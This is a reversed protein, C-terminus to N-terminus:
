LSLLTRKVMTKILQLKYANKSLPTADKVALKGAEEALVDTLEKGTLTQEAYTAKEPWSAILGLIIRAEEVTRGYM